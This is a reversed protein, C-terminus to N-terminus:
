VIRPRYDDTGWHLVRGRSDPAAASASLGYHRALSSLALQLVLKASRAPWRRAREIEEIGKLFCCFDVLLNGFEPGVADIAREVRRRAALVADTLDAIGGDGSRRGRAVAADWNATIRPMLQARAFDARLREGAQFQAVDLFPRGDPGKRQRLWALPSEAANVAVTQPGSEHEIAASVLTRHQAAFEERAGAAIRRRIAAKGAPSIALVGDGAEMLLGRSVLSAVLGAEVRPGTNEANATVFRFEGEGATRLSAGRIALRRLVAHIRREDPEIM